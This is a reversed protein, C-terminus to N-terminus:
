NPRVLPPPPPSRARRLCRRGGRGFAGQRQGRLRCPPAILAPIATRAERSPPRFASERLVPPASAPAASAGVPGRRHCILAARYHLDSGSGDTARRRALPGPRPRRIWCTGRNRWCARLCPPPRCLCLTPAACHWDGGDDYHMRPTLRVAFVPAGPAARRRSPRPPVGLPPPPARVFRRSVACIDSRRAPPRRPAVTKSHRHGPLM